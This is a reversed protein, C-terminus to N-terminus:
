PLESAASLNDVMKRYIATLQVARRRSVETQLGTLLYDQWRADLMRAFHHFLRWEDNANPVGCKSLHDVVANLDDNPHCRNSKGVRPHASNRNCLAHFYTYAFDRVAERIDWSWLEGEFCSAHMYETLSLRHQRLDQLDEAHDGTHRESAFGRLICWHLFFAAAQDAHKWRSSNGDRERCDNGVADHGPMSYRHMQALKVQWRRPTSPLVLICGPHSTLSIATREPLDEALTQSDLQVLDDALATFPLGLPLSDVTAPDFWITDIWCVYHRGSKRPPYCQPTLIEHTWAIELGTADHRM